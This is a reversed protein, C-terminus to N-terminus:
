DWVVSWVAMGEPVPPVERYDDVLGAVVGDSELGEVWAACEREGAATCVAVAEGSLREAEVTEPHPQVRVWAVDARREIGRLRGALVSLPPRGYGWRNPAICEEDDNGDFFEALTLLPMAGAESTRAIVRSVSIM